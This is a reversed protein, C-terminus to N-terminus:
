YFIEYFIIKKLSDNKVKFLRTNESNQAIICGSSYSNTEIGCLQVISNNYKAYSLM